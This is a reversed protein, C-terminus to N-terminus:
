LEIVAEVERADNLQIVIEARVGGDLMHRSIREFHAVFRSIRAAEDPALGRQLLGEEQERRWDAVVDFSPARLLAMADFRDFLRGYENGLCGNVHRRWRGDADDLRELDNIPSILEAPSQVSAGLCWGEVLIVDPRGVFDPWLAAPAVDDALKDFARIATRGDPAAECLADLTATLQVLDHAGPPGRTRMLPHVDRALAAREAASLYFDDLSFHAVKVGASAAFAAALTSKGSGQAGALGILTPRERAVAQGRRALRTMADLAKADVDM